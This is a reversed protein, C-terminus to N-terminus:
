SNLNTSALTIIFLGTAAENYICEERLHNQTVDTAPMGRVHESRRGRSVDTHGAHKESQVWKQKM